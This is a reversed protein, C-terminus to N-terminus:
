KRLREKLLKFAELMAADVKRTRHRMIQITYTAESKRPIPIPRLYRKFNQTVIDLM